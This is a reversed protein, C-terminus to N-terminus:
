LIYFIYTFFLGVTHGDDLAIRIFFTEQSTNVSGETWTVFLLQLEKSVLWKPYYRPLRLVSALELISPYDQFPRNLTQRGARMPHAPVM